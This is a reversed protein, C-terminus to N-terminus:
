AKMYIGSGAGTRGSGARERGGQGWGRIIANDPSKIMRLRIFLRKEKLASIDRSFFLCCFINHTLGIETVVSNVTTMHSVEEEDIFEEDSKNDVATSPSPGEWRRRSSSLRSFFGQIQAKTLWEEGFLKQIRKRVGDHDPYQCTVKASRWFKELSLRHKYCISM